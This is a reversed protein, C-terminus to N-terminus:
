GRKHTVFELEAKIQGGEITLIGFSAPSYFAHYGQGPNFLLINNKTINQPEHTHGFLIIDVSPFEKVLEEEIGFPPGGWHPHTVAIRKGEVEFILHDPLEQRISFGDVNGYVGIFKRARKRMEQLVERGTYDGCHILLEAEKVAEKIPEPLDEWRRTHTDSLVTIKVM